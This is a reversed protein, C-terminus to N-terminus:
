SMGLWYKIKGVGSLMFFCHNPSTKNPYLILVKVQFPNIHKESAPIQICSLREGNSIRTKLM